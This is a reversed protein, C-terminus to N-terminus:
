RQLIFDVRFKLTTEPPMYDDVQFAPVNHCEMGITGRGGDKPPQSGHYELRGAGGCPLTLVPKLTFKAYKTFLKDNLVWRSAEYLGNYGITYHYEIISGAQVDPL